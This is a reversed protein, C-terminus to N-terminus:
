ESGLNLVSPSVPALLEGASFLATINAPVVLRQGEHVTFGDLVGNLYAITWAYNASGLEANAILDLRNEELATVTHYKIPLKNSVIANPTELAIFRDDDVPHFIVQRLGRYRSIHSYDCCVTYQIGKRKVTKYPTLTDYFRM